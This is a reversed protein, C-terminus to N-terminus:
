TSRLRGRVLMTAAFVVAVIGIIQSTSLLGNFYVGRYTDGRWLEIVSRAIGYLVVYWWFVSGPPELRKRWLVTLFAALVLDFGMEILQTPVLPVGLRDPPLNGRPDTFTVAFRSHPGAAVGWCCGAAFCGLRGIGQALALPAAIADGLRFLPLGHKRAYLVFVATGAAVGGMLVGAARLTGLIRAPDALYDRWDVLILLVKAGVIGGLLTFFTLNFLTEEPLGLGRARRMFWWWAIVVALAFLAGYSPLFVHTEGILPLEHRGLDILIPYV